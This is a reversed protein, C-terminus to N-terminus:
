FSRQTSHECYRIEPSTQKTVGTLRNHVATRSLGLQTAADSINRFVRGDACQIPKSKADSIRRCTETKRKRGIHIRRVKEITEPRMRYGRRSAAMRARTEANPRCGPAGDGGDTANVLSFGVDRCFAIMEKEEQNLQEDFAIDERLVLLSPKLGRRALSQIWHIKYSKGRENCHAQLRKQACGATKGIYRVIGTDPEALAYLIM